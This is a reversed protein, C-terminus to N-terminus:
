WDSSAGCRLLMKILMTWSVLNGIQENHPEVETTRVNLADSIM